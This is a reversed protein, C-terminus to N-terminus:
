NEKLIIFMGKSMSLKKKAKAKDAAPLRRTQNVFLTPTKEKTKKELAM